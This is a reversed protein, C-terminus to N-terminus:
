EPFQTENPRRETPPEPYPSTFSGPPPPPASRAGIWILFATGLIFGGFILWGVLPSVEEAAPEQPLSRRQRMPRPDGQLDRATKRVLWDSVGLERGISRFSRADDELLEAIRERDASV